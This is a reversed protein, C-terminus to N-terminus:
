ADRSWLCELREVFWVYDRVPLFTTGARGLHTLMSFALALMISQTLLVATLGAATTAWGPIALPTFLRIAITALLALVLIVALTITAILARVGIREGFVSMASIGHGVLAVFNMKSTGFLRRGRTTPVTDIPLRAQVVAAAYHNWLESVVALQPLSAYPVASFNGVRVPVGSLIRHALRYAQYFFAFVVGESRRERSAFVLKLGNHDKFRQILRPVDSPRDEGDADMIVVADTGAYRDNITVVCLGICIARQHGLNRRLRLVEITSLSQLPAPVLDNPVPTLSGDNILVV